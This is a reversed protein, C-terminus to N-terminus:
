IQEFIQPPFLNILPTWFIYISRGSQSFLGAGISLEFFILDIGFIITQVPEATSGQADYM